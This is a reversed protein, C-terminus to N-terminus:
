FWDLYGTNGMIPWSKARIQACHGFAIHFNCFWCKQALIILQSQPPAPLVVKPTTLLIMETGWVLLFAPVNQVLNAGFLCKHDFISFPFLVMINQMNSNTKAGFTQRFQCCKVKKILNAWFYDLLNLSLSVIKIKQVLNVCFCFFHINGQIRCTSILSPLM